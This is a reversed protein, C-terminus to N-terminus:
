VELKNVLLPAGYGDEDVDEEVVQEQQRQQQAM